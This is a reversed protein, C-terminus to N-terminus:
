LRSPFDNTYACDRNYNLHKNNLGTIHAICSHSYLSCSRHYLGHSTFNRKKVLRRGWDSRQNTQQNNQIIKCPVLRKSDRTAERQLLNNSPDTFLDSYKVYLSPLAATHFPPKMVHPTNACNMVTNVLAMRVSVVYPLISAASSLNLKNRTM